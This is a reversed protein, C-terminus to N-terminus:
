GGVGRLICVASILLLLTQTCVLAMLLGMASAFDSILSACRSGGISEGVAATLKLLLYQCGIRVAPACFLALITLIGWVGAGGGLAAASLLVADAADSLIGGVVPVAGSLAIRAAKGAAADATGSVIGTVTMYATFLTLTGKLIWEMLKGILTKLKELLKSSAAAQGVALTLFMWLMPVFLASVASGLFADAIATGAYLATASTVGGAAALASTLVGLLLLGYQRLSEVTSIGLEIMSASPGLLLSGVAAAGALDMASVSLNGSFQGIMAILLIAAFVRLCCSAAETLSPALLETAEATVHWLGEGFSDAEKPMIAQASQPPPPAQFDMARVPLSLLIVLFGFILSRRM